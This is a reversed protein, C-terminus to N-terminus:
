STLGGPLDISSYELHLVRRHRPNAATSSHLLLPRMLLAGGKNVTCPVPPQHQKWYEVERASEAVECVAARIEGGSIEHTKGAQRNHPHV